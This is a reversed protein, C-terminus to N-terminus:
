FSRCYTCFANEVLCQYRLALKDAKRLVLVSPLVAGFFISVIKSTNSTPFAVPFLSSTPSHREGADWLVKVVALFHHRFTTLVRKYQGSSRSNTLDPLSEAQLRIRKHETTPCFSEPRKNRRAAAAAMGGNLERNAAAGSRTRRSASVPSIYKRLPSPRRSM